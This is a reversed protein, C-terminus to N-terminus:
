CFPQLKKVQRHTCCQRKQTTRIKQNTNKKCISTHHKRHCTRCDYKSRCDSVIHTGFCNFCLKKEKIISIKKEHEAIDTCDNSFHKGECFTFAKRQASNITKKMRQYKSTKGQIGQSRNKGFDKKVSAVFNSTHNATSPQYMYETHGSEQISLERCIADRLKQINWDDSGNEWIINKRFDPPLKGLIVPILLSGFMEQCQGLSELGRIYAESKDYFARLCELREDPVSMDLLSRMYANSIKHTQGYRNQLLEIAKYYNPNTMTLGSVVNAADSQLLSKLYLFKQIDSLTSNHHITSEFSDWFYQWELIDRSFNPLTLKPLRHNQSSTLSTQSLERSFHTFPNSHPIFEQANSDLISSTATAVPKLFKKYKRIKSELELYYEDTEIIEDTIGESDM